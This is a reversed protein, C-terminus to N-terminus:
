INPPKGLCVNFNQHIEIHNVTYITGGTVTPRNVAVVTNNVNLETLVQAATGVWHKNIIFGGGIHFNGQVLALRISAVSAANTAAPPVAASLIRKDVNGLEADAWNSSSALLCLFFFLNRGYM